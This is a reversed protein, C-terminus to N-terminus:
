DMLIVKTTGIITDETKLKAFYIGRAMDDPHWSASSSGRPLRLSTVKQGHINFIELTSQVKVPDFSFTTRDNFPNPYNKLKSKASHLSNIATLIDNSFKIAVPRHDSVNSDYNSFGGNYYDDIRITKTITREDNFEEFLENTILIHDIHSPYSPYSFQTVSGEAISMDAFKYNAPEDLFPQFVNNVSDDTLEDNLDGVVMVQKDSLTQDIYNKILDSADLRRKEEDWSDSTDLVGDGCCKFHNNIIVCDSEKYKMKMVVPARPFSRDRSTYIEYLESIEIEKKYLYALVGYEADQVYYDYGSIDGAMDVFASADTIEQLAYVDVDLSKLIKKVSDVTSQGNKPFQEINWTMVEFTSDTGFSLNNLSQAHINYSMLFLLSILFIHKVLIYTKSIRDLKRGSSLRVEKM